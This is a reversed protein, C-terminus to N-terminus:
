SSCNRETTIMKIKNKVCRWKYKKKENLRLQVLKSDRNQFCQQLNVTAIYINNNHIVYHHHPQRLAQTNPRQVPHRSNSERVSCINTGIIAWLYSYNNRTPSNTYTVKFATLSQVWSVIIDGFNCCRCKKKFLTSHPELYQFALISLPHLFRTTGVDPLM